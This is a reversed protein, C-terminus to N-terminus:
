KIVVKRGGNIYIGKESPKGDLRRGNLDYWARSDFTVEGTDLRIEGIGQIEGNANVLRVTMTEPLGGEGRTRAQLSGTYKLYARFPKIGGTTLRIFDGPSTDQSAATGEYGQNTAFGFIRGIEDTNHTADWRKEAYTGTFAWPAVTKTGATTEGSTATGSFPQEGTADPMFLYPTNAKLPKSAETMTVTTWDEDVSTFDYFTGVTSAPTHDFPLCLTSAVNETFTRKFSADVSAGDGFLTQLATAVNGDISETIARKTGSTCDIMQEAITVMGSNRTGVTGNAIVTGGNITINNGCIANTNNPATAMVTGGNITLNGFDSAIASSLSEGATSAIITGGNITLDKNASLGIAFSNNSTYTATLKGSGNSQGYITLTCNNATGVPAAGSNSVSMEAGDCLILHANGKFTVHGNHSFDVGDTRNEVVYWGGPLNSFNLNEPNDTRLETFDTCYATTGDADIYPISVNALNGEFTVHVNSFKDNNNWASANAVHCVTSGDSKFDDGTDSWTLKEPDAYCYVDTASICGKFADAGISTVTSPITVKTVNNYTYIGSVSGFANDAISTVGEGINITTILSCYKKWPYDNTVVAAMAGKGTISLTGGALSWSLGLHTGNASPSIITFPAYLTGAYDGMGRIEVVCEDDVNEPENLGTMNSYYVNGFMYDTGLTLPTNGDTVTEGVSIGYTAPNNAEEFKIFIYDYTRDRQDVTSYASKTQNPVTATCWKDIDKAWQAYLTVTAGNETTLNRVWEENNYSAGSGNDATNWNKFAKGAPATFGFATLTAWDGDYTLNMDAMTGSGGNADFHVTYTNATWHATLTLDNEVKATFNYVDEGKKWTATYGTKTSGPDSITSGGPVTLDSVDSGGNEDFTVTYAPRLTKGAIASLNVEGAAYVNGDEDILSRGSITLVRSRSNQYTGAAISFNPDTVNITTETWIDITQASISGGSITLYCYTNNYSNGACFEDDATLTGGTISGAALIDGKANITGGSITGSKFDILDCNITGGDMNLTTVTMGCATIESNRDVNLTLTGNMLQINHFNLDGVDLIVEGETDIILDGDIEGYAYYPGPTSITLDGTGGNQFYVDFPSQARATQATLTLLLTALLIIAARPSFSTISKKM